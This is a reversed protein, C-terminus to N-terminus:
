KIIGMLKLGYGACGNRIGLNWEIFNSKPKHAYIINLIESDQYLKNNKILKSFISTFNKNIFFSGQPISNMRYNIYNLIGLLGTGLSKDSINELNIELLKLDLKDLIDNSDGELFNHQFLYEIGWMIGVIGDKMFWPLNINIDDIIEELIEGAFDDYIKQQTMRAYHAFFLVIGMKGNYLGLDDLSSSNLILHNAIRNLSIDTTSPRM